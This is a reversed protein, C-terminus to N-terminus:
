SKNFFEKMTQLLVTEALEFNGGLEKEHAGLYHLINEMCKTQADVLM